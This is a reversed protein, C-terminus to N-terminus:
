MTPTVYATVTANASSRFESCSVQANPEARVAALWEDEVCVDRKLLGLREALINGIRAESFPLSLISVAIQMLQFYRM